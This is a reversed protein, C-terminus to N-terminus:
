SSLERVSKITRLLGDTGIHEMLRKVAIDVSSAQVTVKSTFLSVGKEYTSYEVEYLSM